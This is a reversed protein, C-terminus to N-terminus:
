GPTAISLRPTLPVDEEFISIGGPQRLVIWYFGIQYKDFWEKIKQQTKADIRGAGDSLLIVARSGSNEISTFLEASSTLVLVLIQKFYLMEQPQM